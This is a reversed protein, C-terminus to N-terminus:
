PFGVCGVFKLLPHIAFGNTFISCAPPQLRVSEHPQLYVNGNLM